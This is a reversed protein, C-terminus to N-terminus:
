TEGRLTKLGRCRIGLKLELIRRLGRSCGCQGYELPEVRRVRLNRLCRREVELGLRRSRDGGGGNGEGKLLLARGRVGGHRGLQRSSHRRSQGEVAPLSVAKDADRALGSAIVVPEAVQALLSHRVVGLVDHVAVLARRVAGDSGTGGTAKVHAGCAPAFGPVGHGYPGENEVGGGAWHEGADAVVPLRQVAVPLVCGTERRGGVVGQATRGGGAGKREGGAARALARLAQVALAALVREHGAHFAPQEISAAASHSVHAVAGAGAHVETALTLSPPLLAGVALERLLIQRVDLSGSGLVHAFRKGADPSLSICFSHAHIHTHIYSHKHLTFITFIEAFYILLHADAARGERLWGGGM